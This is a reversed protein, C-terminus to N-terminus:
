AVEFTLWGLPSQLSLKAYVQRACVTVPDRSSPRAVSASAAVNSGPGSRRLHRMLTHQNMAFDLMMVHSLHAVM